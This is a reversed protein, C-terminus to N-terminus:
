RRKVYNYFIYENKFGISEYLNRAINNNLNVKLYATTYGNEKAINLLYQVLKKGLGKGRFKNLIGINVIFAQNDEIILQGYGVYESDLLLFVAGNEFYYEQQEDYFIDEVRLPLRTDSKFVENQIRLRIKEDKNRLFKKFIYKTDRLYNYNTLDFSMLNTGDTTKFGDKMLFDSSDSEKCLYSIYKVSFNFSDNILRQFGQELFNKDKIYFSEINVSNIGNYEYWLFGIYQNFYKLLRVKKRLLFKQFVNHKRYEDLFNKNLPNFNKVEDEFIKLNNINKINLSETKLM